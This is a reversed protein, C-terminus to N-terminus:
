RKRPDAARRAPRHRSSDGLDLIVPFLEALPKNESLVQGARILAQMPATAKAGGREFVMTQNSLAGELSTVVTTSATSEDNQGDFVVVRDEPQM